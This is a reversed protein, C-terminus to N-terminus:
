DNKFTKLLLKIDDPVEAEFEIFKSTSPLKFKIKKAHLCVRNIKKLAIELKSSFKSDFSKVNNLGGNYMTDGFIPHGISNMHVRLQHTRGTFPILKVYSIPDYFNKLFYESKSSKGNSEVMSFKIRNNKDRGIMGEVIGKEDTRGWVVAEYVKYVTRNAFQDAIYDHAYNNKAVVILGSTDKDLRHIIGPRTDNKNSLMSFHYILANVLTNSPNGNGPHVVMGSSKNVIIIDEDEYLIDLGIKQPELNNNFIEIIDGRIIEGGNLKLSPKIQMGNVRIHKNKILSQIKSRSLKPYKNVLFQDIRINGEDVKINISVM